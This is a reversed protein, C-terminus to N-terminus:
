TEAQRMRGKKKKKKKKKVGVLNAWQPISSRQFIMKFFWNSLININFSTSVLGAKITFDHSFTQTLQYTHIFITLQCKHSNPFYM